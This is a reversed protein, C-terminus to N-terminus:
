QFKRVCNKRAEKALYLATDSHKILEEYPEMGAMKEAIGISISVNWIGSGIPVHLASVSKRLQEALHYAGDMTTHVCIIFFEDGGLRCVIDDNRVSDKLTNALQILVSDGADHGYQDNVEKFHDADIMMCALPTQRQV